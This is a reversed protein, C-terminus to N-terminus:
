RLNSPYNRIIKLEDVEFPIQIGLINKLEDNIIDRIEDEVEWGIDDNTYAAQYINDITEGNDLNITVGGNGDVIATCYFEVDDGIYSRINTIFFNFYYSGQSAVFNKSQLKRKVDELLKKEGGYFDVVWKRLINKFLPRLNFLKMTLDLDIESESGWFDLIRKKLKIIKSELNNM